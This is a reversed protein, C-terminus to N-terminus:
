WDSLSFLRWRSPRDTEPWGTRSRGASRDMLWCGKSVAPERTCYFQCSAALSDRTSQLSFGLTVYADFCRLGMWTLVTQFRATDENRASLSLCTCLIATRICQWPEPPWTQILVLRRGLLATYFGVHSHSISHASQLTTALSCFEIIYNAVELGSQAFFTEQDIWPVLPCAHMIVSLLARLSSM